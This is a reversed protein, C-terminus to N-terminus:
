NTVTGTMTVSLFSLGTVSRVRSSKTMVASPRGCATRPEFEHRNRGIVGCSAVRDYEAIDRVIAIRRARRPVEREDNVVQM